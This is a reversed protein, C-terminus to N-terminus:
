SLLFQEESNNCNIERNNLSRASHLPSDIFSTTPSFSFPLLVIFSYLLSFSFSLFDSSHAKCYLSWKLCSVAAAMQRYGSSSVAPSNFVTCQVICMCYSIVIKFLIVIYVIRAVSNHVTATFPETQQVFFAACSEM